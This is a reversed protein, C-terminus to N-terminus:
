EYGEKDNYCEEKPTFQSFYDKLTFVVLFTKLDEVSETWCKDGSSFKFQHTLSQYYTHIRYLKAVDKVEQISIGLDEPKKKKSSRSTSNWAGNNWVWMEGSSHFWVSGDNFEGQPPSDFDRPPKNVKVKPFIGTNAYSELSETTLDPNEIWKWFSDCEEL